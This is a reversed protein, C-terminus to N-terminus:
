AAKAGRMGMIWFPISVILVAAAFVIGFEGVMPISNSGRSSLPDFLGQIFLNHSAHMTVCPWFSGSQLRLWSLAASMSVVAVVFSLLEFRIDGGGNYGSGVIIPVHWAAWIAGTILTGIVFGRAAILRPALLGRWGIEEGLATSMSQLMGVTVLFCLMGILALPDALRAFPGTHAFATVHDPQLFQAQGTFAAASYGLTGYVIPLLLAIVHYKAPGWGWGLEALSHGTLKLALMASLGVSWMSATVLSGSFGLTIIAGDILGCLVVVLILFLVVPSLARM